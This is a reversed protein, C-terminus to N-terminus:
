EGMIEAITNDYIRKAKTVGYQFSIIGKRYDDLIHGIAITTPHELGLEKCAKNFYRRISMINERRSLHIIEV